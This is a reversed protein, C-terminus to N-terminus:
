RTRKKNKVDKNEELRYEILNIRNELEQYKKTYDIEKGMSKINEENKTIRKTHYDVFILILLMIVIIVGIERFSEKFYSLIAMVLALFGLVISWYSDKWDAM